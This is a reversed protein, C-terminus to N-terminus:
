ADDYLTLLEKIKAYVTPSNLTLKHHTVRIIRDEDNYHITPRIKDLVWYSRSKDRSIYLLRPSISIWWKIQADGDHLLEGDSKNIEIENFTKNKLRTRRGIKKTNHKSRRIKKYTVM